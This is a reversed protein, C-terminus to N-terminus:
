LYFKRYGMLCLQVTGYTTGASTNTFNFSINSNASFVRPQAINLPLGEHGALASISVPANQLQKGSGSDTMSVNVLPIIRGSDTQPNGAIDATYASKLWVFDSNAEIQIIKSASAGAALGSVSVTYIFHDPLYEGRADRMKQPQITSMIILGFLLFFFPRWM